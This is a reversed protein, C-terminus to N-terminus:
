SRKELLYMVDTNGKEAESTYPYFEEKVKTLSPDVKLFEASFDMKWMFGDNGRYPIEQQKEAFYEFGWVYQKSCRIMERMIVPLDAPAIHILVGNTYVLDFFGDKFPIDFGSGQIINIGQTGAKAKEVAYPQLEIGYLNKFGMKQLHMLQVGVNCGVELIRIDRSLNGVFAENLQSRLVGYASFHAKDSVELSQPNRDTYEKGFIGNWFETQQTKMIM